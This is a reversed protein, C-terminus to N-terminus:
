VHNVMHKVLHIYFINTVCIMFIIKVLLSPINDVSLPPRTENRIFHSLVLKVNM